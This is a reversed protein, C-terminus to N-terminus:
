GGAVAAPLYASAGASRDQNATPRGAALETRLDVLWEVVDARGSLDLEALLCDGFVWFPCAQRICPRGDLVCVM